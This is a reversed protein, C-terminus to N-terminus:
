GGAVNSFVSAALRVEKLGDGISDAHKEVLGLQLATLEMRIDSGIEQYQLLLNSSRQRQLMSSISNRSWVDDDLFAYPGLIREITTILRAITRERWRAYQERGCVLREDTELEWENRLRFLRAIECDVYSDVILSTEDPDLPIKTVNPRFDKVWEILGELLKPYSLGEDIGGQFMMRSIAESDLCRPGIFNDLSIQVMDFKVKWVLGAETAVRRLSVGPTRTTLLFMSIGSNAFQDGKNLALAWLVDPPRFQGAFVGEGGLVIGDGDENLKTELNSWDTLGADDLRITALTNEGLAIKPLWNCRQSETGWSNLVRMLRMPMRATWTLARADLEEFVIRADATSLGIGGWKTPCGPMLWGRSGLFRPLDELSLGPLHEDLVRGVSNRFRLQNENEYRNFDM